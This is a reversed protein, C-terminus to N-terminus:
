LLFVVREVPSFFFSFACRPPATALNPSPSRVEERAETWGAAGVGGGVVGGHAGSDDGNGVGVGGGAVGGDGTSGGDGAEGVIVGADGIHAIVYTASQVNGANGAEGGIVGADGIHAIM